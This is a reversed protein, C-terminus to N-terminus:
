ALLCSTPCTATRWASVCRKKRGSNQAGREEQGLGLFPHNNLDTNVHLPRPVQVMDEHPKPTAHALHTLHQWM